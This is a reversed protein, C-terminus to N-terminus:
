TRLTALTVDSNPVSFQLNFFAFQPVLGTVARHPADITSRLRGPFRLANISGPGQFSAVNCGGRVPARRRRRESLEDPTM